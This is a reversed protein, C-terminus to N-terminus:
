ARARDFIEPLRTMVHSKSLVDGIGLIRARELDEPRVLGSTLVIRIDARIRLLEECMPFADGEGLRVDSVVIGYARPSAAFAAIAAQPDTFAEVERGLRRLTRTALMVIVDDDDVFLVKDGPQM